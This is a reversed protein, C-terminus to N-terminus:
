VHNKKIGLDKQQDNKILNYTEKVIITCMTVFFAFQIIEHVNKFVFFYPIIKFFDLFYKTVNKTAEM